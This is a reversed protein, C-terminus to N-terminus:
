PANRAIQSVSADDFPGIAESQTVGSYGRECTNSEQASIAAKGVDIGQGYIMAILWSRCYCNLQVVAFKM